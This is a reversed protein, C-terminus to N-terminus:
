PSCHLLQDVTEFRYGRAKLVPVIVKTAAVAASIDPRPRTGRGDHLVIVGGPSAERLVHSAIQEAPWKWDNGIVTWGVGLLGLRKQVRRMGLWRVGYPPRLILPAVGTESEIISQAESFERDIFAPLKMALLPHSYTHNGIQHGREAVERAIRPLRAVNMGCQFFTALVQERNLYELLWPTSESPGDDFTLAIGRTQASGHSRYPGFIQSSRGVAGYAALAAAGGGAVAAWKWRSNM